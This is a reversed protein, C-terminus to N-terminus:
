KKGFMGKVIFGAGAAILGFMLITQFLSTQKWTFKMAMLVSLLLIIVGIIIFIWGIIPKDTAILIIIGILFPLILLGEPMQWGGFLIGNGFGEWTMTNQFVMFVGAAVMIIGVFFSLGNGGNSAKNYDNNM